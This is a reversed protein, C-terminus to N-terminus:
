QPPTATAGPQHQAELDRLWAPWHEPDTDYYCVSMTGDQGYIGPRSPKWPGTVAARVAGLHGPRYYLTVTKPIVVVKREGEWDPCDPKGEVPVTTIILAEPTPRM